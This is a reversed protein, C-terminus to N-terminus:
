VFIIKGEAANCLSIKFKFFFFFLANLWMLWAPKVAANCWTWHQLVKGARQYKLRLYVLERRTVDRRWRQGAGDSSLCHNHQCALSVFVCLGLCYRSTVKICSGALSACSQPTSSLPSFSEIVLLCAASRRPSPPLLAPLFISPSPRCKWTTLMWMQDPPIQIASLFLQLGKSITTTVVKSSKLKQLWVADFFECNWIFHLFTM